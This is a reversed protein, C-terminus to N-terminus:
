QLKSLEDWHENIWEPSKGKLDNLSKIGQRKGSAGADLDIAQAGFQDRHANIYNLQDVIPRDAIAEKVYDPVKLSALSADLQKQLADQMMKMNSGAEELQAQLTKFEETAKNLREQATMQAQQREQEALEYEQLKVRREASEANVASLRDRLSKVESKLQELDPAAQTQTESPQGTPTEGTSNATEAQDKDLM